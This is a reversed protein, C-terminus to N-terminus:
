VMRLYVFRTIGRNREARRGGDSAPSVRRTDLRSRDYNIAGQTNGDCFYWEPVTIRQHPASGSISWAVWGPNSKEGSIGAYSHPRFLLVPASASSPILRFSIKAPAALSLPLITKSLGLRQFDISSYKFYGHHPPSFISLVHAHIFVPDCWWLLPAIHGDQPWIFGMLYRGRGDM